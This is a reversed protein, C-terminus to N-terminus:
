RGGVLARGFPQDLLGGFHLAGARVCVLSVCKTACFPFAEATCRFLCCYCVLCWMSRRPASYGVHVTSGMEERIIHRAFYTFHCAEPSVLRVFFVYGSVWSFPLYAKCALRTHLIIRQVGRVEKNALSAAPKRGPFTTCVCDQSEETHMPSFCGQISSRAQQIWDSLQCLRNWTSFDQRCFM